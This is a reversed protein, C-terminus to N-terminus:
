KMSCHQRHYMKFFHNFCLSKECHSCRIFGEDNCSEIECNNLSRPFCYDRPTQFEGPRDKIFGAQFFAYKILNQFKPAQWLFFLLSEKKLVNERKHLELNLDERLARDTFIRELNKYPRFFYVDAPQCYKTTGRPIMEFHYDVPAQLDKRQNFSGYADALLVTGPKLDKFFVNLFWDRTIPNTCLGSTSACIYLNDYVKLLPEIEKRWVEPGFGRVPPSKTSTPREQLVVLMVPRLTGDAVIRPQLSYSHSTAGINASVGYVQKVGCIDLTRNTTIEFKIGSQDTNEILSPDITPYKQHFERVFRDVQKQLEQQEVRQRRTVVRTIARDTIGYRRKFRLIWSDSARFQNINLEKAKVLAWKAIDSDHVRHHQERTTKFMKWTHEAVKELGERIAPGHIEKAWKYLQRISSVCPHYKQVQSIKRKKQPKGNFDLKTEPERWYDVAAKKKELPIQSKQSSMEESDTWDDTEDVLLHDEDNMPVTDDEEYPDVDLFTDM